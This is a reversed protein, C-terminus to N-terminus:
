KIQGLIEGLKAIRLMSDVAQCRKPSLFPKLAILLNDRCVPISKPQEAKSPTASAPISLSSLLPKAAARLQPLKALIAPNSLIGSLGDIGSFSGASVSPSDSPAPPSKEADQTAKESDLASSLISQMREMWEPNSLLTNLASAGNPSPTAGSVDAEDM